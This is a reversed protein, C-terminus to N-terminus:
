AAEAFVTYRQDTVFARHPKQAQRLMGLFQGFPVELRTKCKIGEDLLLLKEIATAVDHYALEADKSAVYLGPLEDSTFVHWGDLMHRYKVQISTSTDGM